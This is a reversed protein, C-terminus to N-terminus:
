KDILAYILGTIFSVSNTFTLTIFLKRSEKINVCMCLAFELMIIIIESIFLIIMFELSDGAFNVSDLYQNLMLNTIINIGAFYLCESFKKYGSLYFLPTEILATLIATVYM